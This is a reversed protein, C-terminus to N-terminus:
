CSRGELDVKFDGWTFLTKFQGGGKKGVRDRSLKGIRNGEVGWRIFMVM